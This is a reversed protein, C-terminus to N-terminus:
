GKIKLMAIDELLLCLIGLVIVKKNSNQHVEIYFICGSKKLKKLFCIKFYLFHRFVMQFNDFTMLFNGNWEM